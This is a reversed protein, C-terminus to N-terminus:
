GAVLITMASRYKNTRVLEFEELFRPSPNINEVPVDGM